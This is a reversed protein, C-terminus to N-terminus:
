KSKVYIQKRRQEMQELQKDRFQLAFARAEEVTEINKNSWELLIRDIYRINLKGVVKSEDLAALILEMKYDDQDVWQNLYEIERPSLLRGFEQEFVRFLNADIIVEKKKTKAQPLKVFSILQQFLPDLDYCEAMKGWQDVDQQLDIFQAAILAQMEKMIQTSTLNMREEIEQISPFSKGEEKFLFLHLILAFQIDTLGLSKYHQFLLRPITVTGNRILDIVNM